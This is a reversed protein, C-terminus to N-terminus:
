SSNLQSVSNYMLVQIKQQVTIQNIMVPSEEVVTTRNEPEVEWSDELYLVVSMVGYTQSPGSACGIYKVKPSFLVKRHTRNKNGDDVLLSIIADVSNRSGFDLSESLSGKWEAYKELRDIPGNSDGIEPFMDGTQLIEKCALDISHHCILKKLPNVKKLFSIAEEFANPGEQTKIVLGSPSHYNNGKFFHIYTQLIQIYTSPNSRIENHEEIIKKALTDYSFGEKM